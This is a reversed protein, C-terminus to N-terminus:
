ATRKRVLGRIAALAKGRRQADGIRSQLGFLRFAVRQPEHELGDLAEVQGDVIEIDPAVLFDDRRREPQQRRHAADLLGPCIKGSRDDVVRLRIHIRRIGLGGADVHSGM